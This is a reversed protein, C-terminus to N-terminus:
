RSTQESRERRRCAARLDRRGLRLRNWATNPRIRLREAVDVMALGELEYGVVVARRGPELTGLLSSLLEIRERELLLGEADLAGCVADELEAPARVIEARQAEVRRFSAAQRECIGHIWGRLAAEPNPSRSADFAPLGRHIGRLVEQEVDDLESAQVGQQALTRRIFARHEHVVVEFARPEEM